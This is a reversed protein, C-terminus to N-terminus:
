NDIKHVSRTMTTRWRRLTEKLCTMGTQVTAAHVGHAKCSTDVSSTASEGVLEDIHGNNFLDTWTVLSKWQSHAIAAVCGVADVSSVTQCHPLWYRELWQIPLDVLPRRGQRQWRPPVATRTKKLLKHITNSNVFSVLVRLILAPPSKRYSTRFLLLLM